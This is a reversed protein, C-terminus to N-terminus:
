PLLKSAFPDYKAVKTHIKQWVACFLTMAGTKLFFAM